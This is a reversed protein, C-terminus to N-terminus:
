TEHVDQALGIKVRFRKELPGPGADCLPYSSGSEAISSKVADPAAGAGGQHGRTGCGLRGAKQVGVERGRNAGALGPGPAGPPPPVPAPGRRPPMWRRRGTGQPSYTASRGGGCGTSPLPGLYIIQTVRKARQALLFGLPWAPIAHLEPMGTHKEVRARRSEAGRFEAARARQDRCSARRPAGSPPGAQPRRHLLAHAGARRTLADLGVVQRRGARQERQRDWRSASPADAQVEELRGDGAGAVAKQLQM